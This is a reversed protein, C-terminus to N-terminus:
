ASTRGLSPPGIAEGRMCTCNRGFRKADYLAKDAVALVSAPLKGRPPVIAAGISLTMRIEIDGIRIPDRELASRLREALECLEGEVSGPVVILFEEGGYRGISDYIRLTNKLRQSTERLVLDGTLHGYTDNVRKFHDLDVLLVGTSRESQAGRDLESDLIEHISRRNWIGTLSDKTALVRLEERSAILNEQRKLIRTAVILRARLEKAEFPTTMYEAAGSELARAIERRDNEMSLMLIYSSYELHRDSIQRCLEVADIGPLTRSLIILEPPREQEVFQLVEASNAAPLPEFGWKRLMQFLMHRTEKHHEAVVVRQFSGVNSRRETEVLSSMGSRWEFEPFAAVITAGSANPTRVLGYRTKQALSEIPIGEPFEVQAINSGDLRDRDDATPFASRVGCDLLPWEAETPAQFSTYAFCSCMSIGGYYPIPHDGLEARPMARSPDSLSRASPSEPRTTQLAGFSKSVQYHRRAGM